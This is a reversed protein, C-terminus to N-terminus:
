PKKGPMPNTPARGQARFSGPLTGGSSATNDPLREGSTLDAHALVRRNLSARQGIQISPTVPQPPKLSMEERLELDQPVLDVKAIRPVCGTVSGTVLSGSVETSRGEAM